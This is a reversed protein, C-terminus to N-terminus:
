DQMKKYIMVFEGEGSIGAEWWIRSQIGPKEQSKTPANTLLICQLHVSQM